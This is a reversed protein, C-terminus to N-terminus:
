PQCTVQTSSMTCVSCTKTQVLTGMRCELIAKGDATCLGKGEASAACADGGVNGKMDCTIANGSEACGGPGRCPLTRWVKDRCELAETESSCVFGSGECSDGANIGCASLLLSGLLLSSLVPARNM